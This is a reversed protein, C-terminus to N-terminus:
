RTERGREPTPTPKIAAGKAAEAAAKEAELEKEAIARLEDVPLGSHKDPLALADVGSGIKRLNENVLRVSGLAGNWVRQEVLLHEKVHIKGALDGKIIEVITQKTQKLQRKYLLDFISKYDEKNLDKIKKGALPALIRKEEDTLRIMVPRGEGDTLPNRILEDMREALTVDLANNKNDATGLVIDFTRALTNMAAIATAAGTRRDMSGNLILKNVKMLLGDPADYSDRFNKFKREFEAKELLGQQGERKNLADNRCKRIYEQDSVPLPKGKQAANEEWQDMLRNIFTAYEETSLKKQAKELMTEVKSKSYSLGTPVIGKEACANLWTVKDQNPINSFKLHTIGTKQIEGMLDGALSDNMKAGNPTSYGFFFKGAKDQSVMIRCSATSVYVGDKNKRGDERWNNPNEKDYLSFIYSKRGDLTKVHEWYSLGKRKQLDKEIFVRMNNVMENLSMRKPPINEHYEEKHEEETFEDVLPIFDEKRAGEESNEDESPKVSPMSEIELTHEAEYQALLQALKEDVDIEGGRMPLSLSFSSFGYRDCFEIIRKLKEENLAKLTDEPFSIQGRLLAPEDKDAMRTAAPLASLGFNTGDEFTCELELQNTPLTTDGKETEIEPRRYPVDRFTMSLSEGADTDVTAEEKIRYLAPFQYPYENFLRELKSIEEPATGKARLDELHTQFKEPSYEEYNHWVSGVELFSEAM